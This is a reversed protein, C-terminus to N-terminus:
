KELDETWASEDRKAGREAARRLYIEKAFDPV